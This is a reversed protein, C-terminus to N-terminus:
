QREGTTAGAREGGGSGAEAVPWRARPGISRKGRRGGKGAVAKIKTGDHLLTSLDVLGATDLLALFQGFLEELAEQNGVRFDGLTHHNIELGAALWRLGPEHSM